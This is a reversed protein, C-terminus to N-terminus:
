TILYLETIDSHVYELFKDSIQSLIRSMYCHQRETICDECIKESPSEKFKIDTVTHTLKKLNKYSLHTM